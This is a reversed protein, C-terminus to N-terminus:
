KTSDTINTDIITNNVTNNTVQNNNSNSSSISTSTKSIVFLEWVKQEKELWAKNTSNNKAFDNWNSGANFIHDFIRNSSM